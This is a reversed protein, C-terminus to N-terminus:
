PEGGDRPIVYVDNNGEYEATFAIRTGDPSFHPLIESGDGQTLRRATGGDTSVSWLDGEASFVVTNGTITPYRLYGDAALCAAPAVLAVLVLVSLASGAWCRYSRM